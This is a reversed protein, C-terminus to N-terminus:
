IMKIVYYLVPLGIAAGVALQLWSVAAKRCNPCKIRWLQLVTGCHECSWIM